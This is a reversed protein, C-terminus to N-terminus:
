QRDWTLTFTKANVAGAPTSGTTVLQFRMLSTRSGSYYGPTSETEGNYPFSGATTAGRPTVNASPTTTPIAGDSQDDASPAAAIVSGSFQLTEGTVYDGASKHLRINDVKTFSGSLNAEVQKFYSNDGAGIPYDAPTLNASDASGFNISTATATGTDNGPTDSGNYEIWTVTVSM